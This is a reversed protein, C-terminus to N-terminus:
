TYLEIIKLLTKGFTRSNNFIDFCFFYILYFLFVFSYGYIIKVQNYEFYDIRIKYNYFNTFLSILVGIILVDIILALISKKLISNM